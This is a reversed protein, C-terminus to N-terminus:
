TKVIYLFLSILSRGPTPGIKVGPCKNSCVQYVSALHHKMGFIKARGRENELLLDKFNKRETAMAVLTRNPILNKSCNIFNVV